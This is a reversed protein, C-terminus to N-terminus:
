LGQTQYLGGGSNPAAYLVSFLGPGYYYLFIATGDGRIWAYTQTMLELQYRGPNIADMLMKVVAPDAERKEGYLDSLAGALYQFDTEPDPRQFEYTIMKLQNQRFMFVLDATFRSVAVKEATVMISWEQNSREVMSESELAKVQEPTMGWRIGNRFRFDEPAPTATAEPTPSVTVTETPSAGFGLSEWINLITSKEEAGAGGAALLGAAALAAARRIVKHARM